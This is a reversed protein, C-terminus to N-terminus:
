DIKKRNKYMKHIFKFCNLLSTSKINKQGVLKIATGHDPSVRIFSLGGTFNIGEYNSIYKFPILAQDHFIFIFCDYKKINLKTLMSDASIPGDILINKRIKKIIPLIYNIEETGIEGKEGSHPNLGSILIKPKIIKFDNILIKYISLIKNLIFDKKNVFKVIDKIKIHTTLPTIILKQKIFIMNLIKKNDIKQFFETQGIFKKDIKRLKYKSLPLTIIGISNNKKTFNYSEILSNYSNYFNNKAKFDYINFFNELFVIEKKLNINVINIKIELNRKSLYKKFIKINKFLIFKKKIKKLKWLRILLDIGIGDIDGISIAIINIM